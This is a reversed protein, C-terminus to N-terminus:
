EEETNKLRAAIRKQAKAPDKFPFESLINKATKDIDVGSPSEVNPQEIGLRKVLEARQAADDSNNSAKLVYSGVAEIFKQKVFVKAKAPDALIYDPAEILDAELQDEVDSYFREKRVEALARRKNAEATKEMARAASWYDNLAKMPNEFLQNSFQQAFDQSPAAQQQQPAFIQGNEDITYGAAALQGALKDALAAKGTTSHMKGEAEAYAKELEEVSKYKGAFLKAPAADELDEPTDPEERDLDVEEDAM